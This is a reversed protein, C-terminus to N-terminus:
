IDLKINNFITKSFNINSEIRSFYDDKEDKNVREEM